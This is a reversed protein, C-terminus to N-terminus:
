YKRSPPSPLFPITEGGGGEKTPPLDGFGGDRNGKRKETVNEKLKKNRTFVIQPM